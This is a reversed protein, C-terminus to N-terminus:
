HPILLEGLVFLLGIIGLIVPIFILIARDPFSASIFFILKFTFSFTILYPKDSSIEPGNIFVIQDM